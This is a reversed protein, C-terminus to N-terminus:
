LAPYVLQFRRRYYARTLLALVVLAPLFPMWAAGAAGAYLASAGVCLRRSPVRAPLVAGGVALAALAAAAAVPLWWRSLLAGLLAALAFGAALRRAASAGWAVGATRKGTCRDGDLDLLTTHLFVTAVALASSAVLWPLRPGWAASMGGAGLAVAIGGYGAANAAVDAGPRAALRLPPVSYALGLGAAAAIWAPAAHLWVAGGIGAGLLLAAALVYHRPAFIGRQLFFAKGNLLDSERDVVQNVLHAAAMVLTFCGLRAVPFPAEPAGQRAAGLGLLFFSWAPVLVLPRLAFFFDVIRM